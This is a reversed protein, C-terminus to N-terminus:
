LDLTKKCQGDEVAVHQYHTENEGCKSAIAILGMGDFSGSGDLSDVNHDVNNGVWQTFMAPFCELPHSLRNRSCCVISIGICKM